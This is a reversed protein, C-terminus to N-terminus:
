LNERTYIEFPLVATFNVSASNATSAKIMGGVTQEALRALPHSILFTLSGDILGQRTTETLDHGVVVIEGARSSARVAALAGSIGGGAVYLGALDPHEALLKETLEQAITGSEFTTRAELLVFNPAYERFYSRFGSENMEQCRYRHNGVLIALKGPSKCIHQFAWAATRGVKWNDLGVYNILGVASLQSILAFVPVGNAQLTDVAQSVQPHVAAVIGIADCDAGLAMARNAINQPALEELFEIQVTIDCDRIAGAATRLAQAVDRYLVRNPQQLLFGFRFHRRAAALRSDIAGLGYFGITEAAARVAERTDRKVVASGGLVRNVTAVSVEAAKALDRITPRKM